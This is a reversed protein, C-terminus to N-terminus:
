SPPMPNLFLPIAVPVDSLQVPLQNGATRILMDDTVGFAMILCQHAVLGDHETQGVLFHIIGHVPLMRVKDDIAGDGKVFHDTQDGDAGASVAIQIEHAIFETM